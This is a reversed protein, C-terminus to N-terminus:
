TLCELPAKAERMLTDRPRPSRGLAECFHRNALAKVLHTPCFAGDRNDGDLQVIYVLQHERM